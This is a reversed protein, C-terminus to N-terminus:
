PFAGAAPLGVGPLHHAAGTGIEQLDGQLHGVDSLNTAAIREAFCALRDLVALLERDKAHAM